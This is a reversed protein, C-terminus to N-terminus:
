RQRLALDDVYVTANLSTVVMNIQANTTGAPAILGGTPSAVKVWGGTGGTPGSLPPTPVTQTSLVANAANRWVINFRFTFTDTSAPINVWGAFDYTGATLGTRTQGITYGANNTARHRGGFGESRASAAQRTFRTSSTWSDPRGDGNADTEFGPNNVILNAKTGMDATATASPTSEGGASNLATVRYVPTGAPALTDEWDSRVVATAPTIRTYPGAATTARYVAYGALGTGHQGGVGAGGRDREGDRDAGDAGGAGVAAPDGHHLEM